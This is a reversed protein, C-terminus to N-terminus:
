RCVDERKLRLTSITQRKRIKPKWQPKGHRTWLGRYFDNLDVEDEHREQANDYSKTWLEVVTGRSVLTHPANRQWPDSNGVYPEGQAIVPRLCNFAGAMRNAFGDTKGCKMVEADVRMIYNVLGSVETTNVSFHTASEVRVTGNRIFGNSHLTEDSIRYM